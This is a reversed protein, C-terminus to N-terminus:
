MLNNLEFAVLLELSLAVVERQVLEIFQVYQVDLRNDRETPVHVTQM